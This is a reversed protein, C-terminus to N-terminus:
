RRNTKSAHPHFASPMSGPSCRKRAYELSDQASQEIMAADDENVVPLLLSNSDSAALASAIITIVVVPVAVIFLLAPRDRAVLRLDKLTVTLLSM